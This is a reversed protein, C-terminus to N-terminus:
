ARAGAQTVTAAALLQSVDEVTELNHIIRTLQLLQGAPFLRRGGTSLWDHWMDPPLDCIFFDRERELKRGDRTHVTVRAWRSGHGGEFSVEIAQMLQSVLPDNALEDDAFRSADIRGDALVRALGYPVSSCALCAPKFPGRAVLEMDGARSGSSPLVVEITSVSRESLRHTEILDALL